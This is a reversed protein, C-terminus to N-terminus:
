SVFDIIGRDEKSIISDVGDWATTAALVAAASCGPGCAMGVTGAAAVVAGKTAALAVREAEEDDGAIAHGLAIGHGM